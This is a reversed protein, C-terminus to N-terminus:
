IVELHFFFCFLLCLLDLSCNPFPLSDVCVLCDPQSLLVIDIILVVDIEVFADALLGVGWHVPNVEISFSFDDESRDEIDGVSSGEVEEVIVVGAFVLNFEVDSSYQNGLLM